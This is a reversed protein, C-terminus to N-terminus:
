LNGVRLIKPRGLSKPWPLVLPVGPWVDFFNDPLKREGDLDLCVRWAFSSCSFIAKGGALRVSVRPRSWSMERFFPLFLRDRAIERDGDSLRAFAIHSKVGLRDWRKGDFEALLTSANPKLLFPRTEDMPYQGKLSMIGFRLTGGAVSQTENIGWVRVCDDERTVAVAVPAFARRVPHFSPTRRQYYDLITWSRVAPWCDNYMWFIASASSFMRRRFNRIYESLGEGQVVGGWYVWDDLTMDRRRKGLWQELMRDVPKPTEWDSIANEHVQWGPSDPHTLKGGPLCAAVTPRACPGMIGGENPFRDIMKRYKRFDTENFGISWPHQDGMDPRSPNQGDPSFPSSPQYYRTPDEDHLLRPLANHFFAHDPMPIPGTDYGWEWNGAEMENNGCWVVLSPHSALRRVQFRAERKVDEFFAGDITPYKACAYVFEQWVLIGQEDCLAFLEDAEYLGGGWVRLMNFNAELARDVLGRYRKADLAATIMDAPVLNGGKVFIPRHNVEIVFYRGGQPHPEQNVRVHRFGIRATRVGMSHGGVKLEARLPYLPQDGQGVPWWLKPHAVDVTVEVPHLGPQITVPLTTTRGAVSVSLTARVPKAGLGEVFVRARVTASRLDDAVTVLPVLQDVRAPATTWELRVSGTIGVNLLRPSWDWEFQSQPKRLWHRKHLAQDRTYEYGGNLKDAVSFLGSEIEVELVNRGVKLKGTVEVRCPYFTNHHEGVTEGNLIVKASLDLRDFVLWARGRRAAPPVSLERRYTWVMEEVWRAALVNTGVYPDAIWGAKLLDLHVEGPVTADLYRDAVIRGDMVFRTRGRQGSRWCLKWAGDLSRSSTM